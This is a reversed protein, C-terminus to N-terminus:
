HLVKVNVLPNVAIPNDWAEVYCLNPCSLLPSLDTVYCDRIDLRQLNILKEAFDIDTINNYALSLYELSTANELAKKQEDTLECSQLSLIKLNKMKSIQLLSKIEYRDLYIEELGPAKSYANLVGQAVSEEKYGIDEESYYTDYFRTGRLDLVKLKDSFVIEKPAKRFTCNTLHLEELSDVQFIAHAAESFEMSYINLVRLEPLEILCDIDEPKWNSAFCRDLTLEKLGKMNRIATLMERNSSDVALKELQPLEYLFDIYGAGDLLLTKLSKLKEIETYLSNNSSVGFLEMVLCELNQANGLGKFVELDRNGALRLTKLNKLDKVFSITLIDTDDISLNELHTFSSIVSLDKIGTATGRIYFTKLGSIPKLQVYSTGEFCDICYLTELQTCKAVDDIYEADVYKLYLSKLGTFKEIGTLDQNEVKLVEIQEIPLGADILERISYRESDLLTLNPLRNFDVCEYDDMDLANINTFNAVDAYLYEQQEDMVSVTLTKLTDRFEENYVFTIRGTYDPLKEHYDPQYDKYDAMSYTITYTADPWDSDLKFYRISALEEETVEEVSKGFIQRVVQQMTQSRFGEWEEAEGNEVDTNSVIEEQQNHPNEPRNHVQTAQNASYLVGFVVAVVLFLVTIVVGLVVQVSLYGRLMDIWSINKEAVEVIPQEVSKSLDEDQVKELFVNVKYKQKCYECLAYGEDLIKLNAGCDRCELDILEKKADFHPTKNKKM